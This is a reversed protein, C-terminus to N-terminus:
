ADYVAGKEVVLTKNAFIGDVFESDHSIVVVGKGDHVLRQIVNNLTEISQVDLGSTPEDLVFLQPDSMLLAAMALRQKEGKSLTIVNQELKDELNFKKLIEIAKKAAKDNNNGKLQEVFTLEELVNVAFLQNSPEQFLYAIKQGIKSLTLDLLSAENFLIDGSKPKLIGAILKAITTKGNANEGKLVTIGSLPIAFSVNKIEFEGNQYRFCVDKFRLM